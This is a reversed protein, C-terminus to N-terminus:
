VPPICRLDSCRAPATHALDDNVARVPLPKRDSRPTAKNLRDIGANGPQKAERQRSIGARDALDTERRLEASHGRRALRRQRRVQGAIQTPTLVDTDGRQGALGFIQDAVNGHELRPTGLRGRDRPPNGTKGGCM